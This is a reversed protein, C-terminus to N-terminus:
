FAKHFDYEFMSSSFDNVLNNVTYDNELILPRNVQEKMIKKSLIRQLMNLYSDIMFENHTEFLKEESFDM